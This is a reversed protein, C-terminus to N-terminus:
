TITDKGDDDGHTCAIRASNLDSQSPSARPRVERRQQGHISLLTPSRPISPPPAPSESPTWKIQDWLRLLHCTRVGNASISDQRSRPDISTSANGSRKAAASPASDTPLPHASDLVFMLSRLASGM